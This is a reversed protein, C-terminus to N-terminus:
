KLEALRSDERDLLLTSLRALQSTDTSPVMLVNGILVTIRSLVDRDPLGARISFKEFLNLSRSNTLIGSLTHAACHLRWTLESIPLNPTIRSLAGCFRDIADAYRAHIFDQVVASPDITVRVILRLLTNRELNMRSSSQRVAVFLVGLVHSCESYSGFRDVLRDLFIMCDLAFPDLRRALMAKIMAEKGGFHYSIAALNASSRSAVQRMVTGDFGHEIFLQEAADLLRAKTGHSDDTHPHDTM